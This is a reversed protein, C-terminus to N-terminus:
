PQVRSARFVSGTVSRQFLAILRRWHHESAKPDFAVEDPVAFGHEAGPYVEITYSVQALNLAEALRDTEGPALWPDVEAVGVYIEGEIDLADLHPSDPADTALRAGYFSAVADVRGPFAAAVALSLAGGAGYGLAGIGPLQVSPQVDLYGLFAKTDSIVMAKTLSHFTARDFNRRNEAMISEAPGQRYHLNPLLVAFGNSALREATEFLAQRIGTEDVYIIVPPWRGEDTPTFFFADASGDRTKITITTSPM